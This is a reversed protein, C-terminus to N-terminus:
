FFFDNTADNLFIFLFSLILPPAQAKAAAAAKEKQRKMEEEQAKAAAAAEEEQRKLKAGAEAKEKKRQEEEKRKAEEAAAKKDLFEKIHKRLRKAADRGHEIGQRGTLAEGLADLKKAVEEAGTTDKNADTLREGEREMEKMNRNM